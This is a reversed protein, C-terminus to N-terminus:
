KLCYRLVPFNGGGNQFMALMNPLSATMTTDNIKEYDSQYVHVFVITDWHQVGPLLLYTDTWASVLNPFFIGEFHLDMILFFFPLLLYFYQQSFSYKSTPFSLFHCFIYQHDISFDLFFNAGENFTCMSCVQTLHLFSSLFVWLSRNIKIALNNTGCDMYM